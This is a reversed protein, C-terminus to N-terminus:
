TIISEWTRQHHLLEINFVTWLFESNWFILINRDKRPNNLMKQKMLVLLTYGYTTHGLARTAVFGNHNYVPPCITKM